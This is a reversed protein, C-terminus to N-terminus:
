HIMGIGPMEWWMIRVFLDNRIDHIYSVSDWIWRSMVFDFIKSILM